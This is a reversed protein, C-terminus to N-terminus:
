YYKNIIRDIPHSKKNLPEVNNVEYSILPKIGNNRLCIKSDKNGNISTLQKASHTESAISLKTPTVSIKESAIENLPKVWYLNSDNYFKLFIKDEKLHRFKINGGNILYKRYDHSLMNEYKKSDFMLFNEKIYNLTVPTYNDIKKLHYQWRGYSVEIIDCM